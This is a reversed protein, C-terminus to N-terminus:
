PVSITTLDALLYLQQYSFTLTAAASPPSSFQYVVQALPADAPVVFNLAGVVTEGPLMSTEVLEPTEAVAVASRFPLGGTYLRGFADLLSFDYPTFEFPRDGTNEIRLTVVVYRQGVQPALYQEWDEFPDIVEAVTVQAAAIGDANYITVPEGVQTSGVPAPTGAQALLTQPVMVLLLMAVVLLLRM